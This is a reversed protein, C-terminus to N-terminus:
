DFLVPQTGTESGAATALRARVSAGVDAVRYRLTEGRGVVRGESLWEVRDAGRAVVALEGRDPDHRFARLDPPEEGPVAHQYYFRGERLAARVAPKSREAVLLVNRSRDFAYGAGEGHYDDNAFGWVPREAGLRAQLDDWLARDGPHRDDANVVEVGLLHDHTRFHEVYWAGDDHYRGPHPFVALGDRAGVAELTEHVTMGTTDALDCFYSLTDQAISDGGGGLEAARVAVMEVDGPDRDWRTWPWTPEEISYEHGTLALVAYGAERYADIVAPPPDTGSHGETPPHASHAHLQARHREVTGWDVAGYPNARLETM